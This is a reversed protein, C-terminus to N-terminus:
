EEEEEEEELINEILSTNFPANDLNFDIWMQDFGVSMISECIQNYWGWQQFKQKSEFYHTDDGQDPNHNGGCSQYWDNFEESITINSM